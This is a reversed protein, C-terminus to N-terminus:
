AVFETLVRELEGVWAHIQEQRQIKKSHAVQLTLRGEVVQAAVLILARVEFDEAAPHLDLTDDSVREFPSNPKKLQNYVGGHYRCLIEIPFHRAGFSDYGSPTLFAADFYDSGNRPLTRHVAQVQNLIAKMDHCALGSQLAIPFFSTFWGVARFVDPQDTSTMNRGHHDNFIAPPSRRDPFSRLFSSLTAAALADGIRVVHSLLKSSTTQDLAFGSTVIDGTLNPVTDMGWYQCDSQPVKYPLCDSLRLTKARSTQRICWSQFSLSTDPPLEQGSLLLELDELIVQWSTPDTVLHHATLFLHQEHQVDCLAAIFVPGDCIDLSKQMAEIAHELEHLKKVSVQRVVTSQDNWPSIRQMWVNDQRIFRARLMEHRCVLANIAHQLRGFEVVCRLRLLFSMAHQHQPVARDRLIFRQIAGLPFWAGPEDHEDVVPAQHQEVRKALSSIKRRTLIDQVTVNLHQARCKSAIRIASLSSGGLRTFSDDIGVQTVPIELVESWIQQLSQEVPTLPRSEEAQGDKEQERTPEQPRLRRLIGEDNVVALVKATSADPEAVIRNVIRALADAVAVATVENLHTRKYKLKTRLEDKSYTVALVVDFESPDDFELIKIRISSDEGALDDAWLRQLSIATNFLAKGGLDLAHHLEAMSVAQHLLGDVFREQARRMLSLVSESGLVSLSSVLMSITPGMTTEIGDVPTDRGNALFGCCPADKGTVASLVLIWAVQILTSVTSEHSSCFSLTKAINIYPVSIQGLGDTISADNDKNKQSAPFYCPGFGSLQSQWFELASMRNAEVWTIYDGYLGRSEDAVSGTHGYLRALDQCILQITAADNLAHNMELRIFMDIGGHMIALHHHPQSPRYTQAPLTKIQEVPSVAGEPLQDRSISIAAEQLVVQCYAGKASLHSVFITRMIAHKKCLRRWAEVLRDTSVAEGLKTSSVRFCAQLRYHGAVTEQALLIGEQVPSCGYISEVEAADVGIGSLADQLSDIEEGDMQLRPVDARTLRRERGDLSIALAALTVKLEQLWVEVRDAHKMHKNHHLMFRLQGDALTASISILGFMEVDDAIPWCRLKDSSVRRLLSDDSELQQFQGGYNFVIEVDRRSLPRNSLMRSSFWEWGNQLYQARADKTQRVAELVPTSAGIAPHIPFLTTFWGVSRSLDLESDWTERGHSENYLAPTGRDRFVQGFSVVIGTLLLDLLSTNYAQNCPGSLKATTEVDLTMTKSVNDGRLNQLERMGWFDPDALPLSPDRHHSQKTFHEAQLQVWTTSPLSEPLTTQPGDQLLNSLDELLIRWSVLDIVLHHATLHLIGNVFSGDNAEIYTAAFVFGSTISLSAERKNIVRQIEDTDEVRQHEFQEGPLEAEGVIEQKWEGTSSEVFRCRLSQHHRVLADIGAQMSSPSVPRTLEFVWSQNFHNATAPGHYQCLLEQIPSLMGSRVASNASIDYGELRAMKRNQDEVSQGSSALKSVLQGFSRSQLIDTVNLPIKNQRCKSVISMASISDGGLRIFSSEGDIENVPVNLVSSWIQRIFDEHSNAVTSPAKWTANEIEKASSALWATVRRRDLKGSFTLPLAQVTIWHVPVMYAPLVGSVSSLARSLVSSAAELKEYHLARLVGYTDKSSLETEIVVTLNGQLTGLKPVVAMARCIGQCAALAQEVDALQLRQGHIKAQDDVRRGLFHLSGDANYKAMDGTRFFRSSGCSNQRQLAWKPPGCFATTTVTEGLYGSGVNPGEIVIEGIAGIPVLEDINEKRVLWVACSIPFGISEPFRSDGNVEAITSLICAECPGYGNYLRVHESWQQVISRGIPEGVSVLTELGPVLLPDIGHSVTPTLAAWTAAKERMFTVLCALRDEDSPVCVTGGFAVTGLMEFVNIDFVHAAFQLVRINRSFGFYRGLSQLTSSLTSHEWVVGKPTSTSGSTFIIYANSTPSIVSVPATTTIPLNDFLEQGVVLREIGDLSTFLDDHSGLVLEAAVNSIIMAKRAEPYKPDIPVCFSGAKLIALVAVTTWRTKTFVFPIPKSPAANRRRLEDALRDSYVELQEYTFSGDWADIAIHLPQQSATQRIMACIDKFPAATTAVGSNWRQLEAKDGDNCSSLTSLTSQGTSNSMAMITHKFQRLVREMQEGTLVGTDFYATVEVGDPRLQCDLTLSYTTLESNPMPITTLGLSSIGAATDSEPQVVLLTQFDVSSAAADSAESIERLGLQEYPIMQTTMRQVDSLLSDVTMDQRFPVQFPVTAIVPGCIADIGHLDANRGSITLGFTPRTTNAYTASVMAWVAQLLTPISFGRQTIPVSDISISTRATAYPNRGKSLTVKPFHSDSRAALLSSWFKLAPTRRMARCHKVFTKFPTRESLPQSDYAEIVNQWILGLSWGDFIAHHITLVFERDGILAFRILSAAPEITLLRETRLCEGRNRYRRWSIATTTVAQVPGASTQVIRTRLISNKALTLEWAMKFRQLDLSDNMNYLSQRSYASAARSSSTFLAEQMSTCPYIDEIDRESLLCIEAVEKRLAALNLEPFQTDRNPFAATLHECKEAMAAMTHHEFIVTAPLRIGAQRAAAVLRMVHISKGGLQFFSDGRGIDDIRIHLIGAWLGALLRESETKLASKTMSVLTFKILEDEAMKLALSHFAKRDRKGNVNTPMATVPMFHSPLMSDPLLAQLRDHRGLIRKRKPETLPIIEPPRTSPQTEDLFFAVMVTCGSSGFTIVDCVVAELSLAQRLASEIEAMDVRIGSIKRQSDIRGVFSITGDSNYKALDGTMFARTGPRGRVADLWPVRQVFARATGAADNLYGRALTPGEVLLEGVAGIEALQDPQGPEVIWLNAIYGQGISTSPVSEAFGVQAACRVTCETQGYTTIVTATGMWARVISDDVAEGGLCLTKLKPVQLPDILGAFSSTLWAWNADMRNIAGTLDELRDVESSICLTGGKFLTAFIEGISAGFSWASFQFTRTKEDMLLSTGLADASTCLGQHEFVVAKPSGSSGSTFVLACANNPVASPLPLAAHADADDQQLVSRWYDGDVSLVSSCTSRLFSEQCGDTIVISVEAHTLVEQLKEVPHSPNLALFAAGAKLIGLEVVIGFASKEMCFAVFSEPRAGLAVLRVALATAARDLQEYTLDFDWAHVALKDPYQLARRQVELHVCSRLPEHEESNQRLAFVLPSVDIHAQQKGIAPTCDEADDFMYDHLGVNQEQLIGRLVKRHCKGSPTTPIHSLPMFVTPVMISQLKTLALAIAKRINCAWEDRMSLILPTSQSSRQAQGGRPMFFAVLRATTSEVRENSVEIVVDDALGTLGMKVYHTIEGLEMRVGRVKVQDDTRTLFKLSGDSQWEVVDGTRLLRSEKTHPELWAPTPIFTSSTKITDHLYGQALISGEVFLEGHHGPPVPLFQEDCVWFRCGISRGINSPDSEPTNDEKGSCYISAEALGYALILRCRGAWRTLNERHVAEGGLVLTRLGPVEDPELLKAMTPTLLTWNVRSRRIFGALDGLREQSSPICVCGGRTFVGLIDAIAVDFTHAAFQLVRSSPGIDWQSGFAEFSSCLAMHSLTIAKPTGTSGSTFQVVAVDQPMTTHILTGILPQKQFSEELVVAHSSLADVVDKTDRGALVLKSKTQEILLRLRDHPMEPDLAACAAGARLIGLMAIPVWKSKHFCFPVIDGPKIGYDALQLALIRSLSEVEQYQWDGDSAQVAQASPRTSAQDLFVDHICAHVTRPVPGAWKLLTEFNATSLDYQKKQAALGDM